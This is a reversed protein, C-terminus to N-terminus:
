VPRGLFRQLTAFAKQAELEAEDLPRLNRILQAQREPAVTGYSRFTTLVDEHGFNQSWAKMEEPTRCIRQGVQALTKRFSHPHFYPLGAAAFSNRFIQRIPGTTTWHDRSLGGAKFGGQDAVVATRPFLPDETSWLKEQVLFKVWREVISHIDPGVPSFWTTFTKSFKTDVELADQFVRGEAPDIHKLKLSALAGDRIATLATLAILARNRKDIETEDPMLQLTHRVQEITPVPKERPAKAIRTEKDSLRFYEADSYRIRSKYGPQDALWIFFSRLISLTQHITSYSLPQHNRAASPEGLANRFAIAQEIHFRRFERFRTSVEFRHLAKSVADLTQESRGRASKLHRRYHQKIRENEPNYKM